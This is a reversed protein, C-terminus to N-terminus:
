GSSYFLLFTASSHKNHVQVLLLKIKHYKKVRFPRELVQLLHKLNFHKNLSLRPGKLTLVNPWIM